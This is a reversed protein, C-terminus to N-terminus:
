INITFLLNNMLILVEIINILREQILNLSLKTNRPTKTDKHRYFAKGSLSSSVFAASLIFGYFRSKM